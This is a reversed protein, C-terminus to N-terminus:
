AKALPAVSASQISSVVQETLAKLEVRVLENVGQATLWERLAENMLSQYGQGAPVLQKFREVVETDIRITIRSKVTERRKQRAETGRKISRPDPSSHRMHAHYDFELDKQTPM